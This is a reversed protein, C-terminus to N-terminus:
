SEVEGYANEKNRGSSSNYSFRDHLIFIVRFRRCRACVCTIYGEYYSPIAKVTIM